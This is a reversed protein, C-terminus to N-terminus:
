FLKNLVDPMGKEKLRQLIKLFAIATIYADGSATHRDKKSINLLETLEDLTFVKKNDILNSSLRTRQHLVGTDLVKNKLNPLGHRELMKNLMMIDFYAHHAVIVSNDLYKLLRKIGEEAEVKELKGEKLLGHIEVTKPNFTQQKLYVEFSDQVAIANSQVSVAGISLVRDKKFDFGTTETDLVVFRNESITKPLKQEFFREYNKWYKPYSRPKSKKLFKMM